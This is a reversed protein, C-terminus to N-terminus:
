GWRAVIRKAQERAADRGAVAEIVALAFEEACGAGRATILGEDVVVRDERYHGGAAMLKERTAPFSTFTRNRLLGAEALLLPAACLAVLRRNEAAFARLLDLVPPKQLLANVGPGGPLFLIDYDRAYGAPDFGAPRDSFSSGGEPPSESPATKGLGPSGSDPSGFTGPHGSAGPRAALPFDCELGIDHSGRILRRDEASALDVRFGARRWLDVPVVVEIEEVGDGFVALIKPKQM